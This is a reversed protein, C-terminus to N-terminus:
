RGKMYSISFNKGDEALARSLQLAQQITDVIEAPQVTRGVRASFQGAASAALMHPDAMPLHQVTMARWLAASSPKKMKTMITALQRDTTSDLSADVKAFVESFLISYLSSRIFSASTEKLNRALRMSVQRVNDNLLTLDRMYDAQDRITSPALVSVAALSRAFTILSNNFSRLQNDMAKENWKWILPPEITNM